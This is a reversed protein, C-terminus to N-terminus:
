KMLNYLGVSSNDKPAFGIFGIGGNFVQGDVDNEWKAMALPKFISRLTTTDSFYKGAVNEWSIVIKIEPMKLIDNLNRQIILKDLEMSNKPPSLPPQNFLKGASFSHSLMDLLMINKVEQPYPVLISNDVDLSEQKIVKEGGIKVYSSVTNAGAKTPVVFTEGQVFSNPFIGSKNILEELQNINPMIEFQLKINVAKTKGINRLVVSFPSPLEQDDIGLAKPFVERKPWVLRTDIMFSSATIIPRDPIPAFNILLFLIISCCIVIAIIVRPPYGSLDSVLTLINMPLGM